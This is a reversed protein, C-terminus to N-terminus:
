VRSAAEELSKEKGKLFLSQLMRGEVFFVCKRCNRLEENLKRVEMWVMYRNAEERAELARYTMLPLIM